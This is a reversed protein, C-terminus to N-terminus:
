RHERRYPSKRKRHARSRWRIFGPLLLGGIGAAFATGLKKTIIQGGLVGLGSGASAAAASEESGTILGSGFITGIQTGLISIGSEILRDVATIDNLPKELNEVAEVVADADRKANDAATVTELQSRSIPANFGPLRTFTGSPEVAPLKSQQIAAARARDGETINPVGLAKAIDELRDVEASVALGFADAGEDFVATLDDVMKQNASKIATSSVEAVKVLAANLKDLYIKAGAESGTVFAGAITQGLSTETLVETLAQRLQNTHVEIVLGGITEAIGKIVQQAFEGLDKLQEMEKNMNKLEVNAEVIEEKLKKYEDSSKDTIKGLDSTLDNILRQQEAIDRDQEAIDEFHGVLDPGIGTFAETFANAVDGARDALGELSPAVDDIQKKLQAVVLEVALTEEGFAIVSGQIAKTVKESQGALKGTAEVVDLTLEKSQQELALKENIRKIELDYLGQRDGTLTLIDVQLDRVGEQLSLLEEVSTTHKDLIRAIAKDKELKESALDNDVEAAAVRDDLRNNTEEAISKGKKQNENILEHIEALNIGASAQRRLIEGQEATTLTTEQLAIGIADLTTKQLKYDNTQQKTIASIEANGSKLAGLLSTVTGVSDKRREIVVQAIKQQLLLAQKEATAGAIILRAEKERGTLIKDQLEGKRLLQKEETDNETIARDQAAAAFDARDEELKGAEKLKEIHEKTLQALQEANLNPAIERGLLALEARAKKIGERANIFDIHDATDAFAGASNRRGDIEKQVAQLGKITEDQGDIEASIRAQNDEFILQELQRKIRLQDIEIQIGNRVEQSLNLASQAAKITADIISADKGKASLIDVTQNIQNNLNDFGRVAKTTTKITQKELKEMERVSLGLNNKSHKAMLEYAENLKLTESSVETSSNALQDFLILFDNVVKEGKFLVSLDVKGTRTLEETFALSLRDALGKVTSVDINLGELDIEELKNAATFSDSILSELERFVYGARLGADTNDLILDAREKYLRNINSENKFQGGQLTAAAAIKDNIIDLKVGVADYSGLNFTFLEGKTKDGLDVYKVLEKNIISLEAAKKELTDAEDLNAKKSRKSAILAENGRRISQKELENQVRSLAELQKEENDFDAPNVTQLEINTNRFQAYVRQLGGLAKAYAVSGKESSLLEATFKAFQASGSFTINALEETNQALKRMDEATVKATENLDKLADTTGKIKNILFFFAEFALISAIGRLGGFISLLGKGVSTAKAAVRTWLSLKATAVGTAAGMKEVSSGVTKLQAALAALEKETLDVNVRFKTWGANTKLLLTEGKKINRGLRVMADIQSDVAGANGIAVQSAVFGFEKMALENAKINSETAILSNLVENRTVDAFRKQALGAGLSAAKLVLMGSVLHILAGSVVAFSRGVNTLGGEADTFSEFITAIAGVQTKFGLASNGVTDAFEVFLGKIRVLQNSITELEIQSAKLAFGFSGASDGAAALAVPYQDMLVLFNTYHRIGGLLRATNLRQADTLTQWKQAIEGLTKDLPRIAGDVEFVAVGIERLAEVSDDQIFRAFITKLSNGVQQGTKRTVQTVAVIKGIVGDMDVGFEKATTGLLKIAATLDKTTVAYKRQVNIVKDIVGLSGEATVNYIRQAATLFEVSEKADLGAATMAVLSTETLKNIEAQTKGQQAWVFMIDIIEKVDKGFTQSLAFASKRLNDLNTATGILVKEIQAFATELERPISFTSRLAEIGKQMALFALRYRIIKEVAINMFFNFDKVTDNMKRFAAAGKAQAAAFQNTKSAAEEASIGARKLSGDLFKIAENYAKANDVPLTKGTMAEYVQRLEPTLTGLKKLEDFLISAAAKAKDTTLVLRNNSDSLDALRGQLVAIEQAQQQYQPDAKAKAEGGAAAILQRQKNTLDALKTRTDDLEANIAKRTANEQQAPNLTAKTAEVTQQAKVGTEQILKNLNTATDLLAFYKELANGLQVSLAQAAAPDVGKLLDRQGALEGIQTAVRDLESHVKTLQQASKPGVMGDAQLRNTKKTVSGILGNVGAMLNKIEQITLKGKPNGMAATLAKAGNAAVQTSAGLSQVTGQLEIGQRNAIDIYGVLLKMDEAIAVKDGAKVASKLSNFVETAGKVTNNFNNFEAVSGPDIKASLLAEKASQAYKSFGSFSKVVSNNIANFESVVTKANFGKIATRLSQGFQAAIEPAVGLSRIINDIQAKTEKAGNSAVLDIVAGKDLVKLLVAIQDIPAKAKSADAVIDLIYQDRNTAL